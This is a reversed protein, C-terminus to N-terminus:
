WFQLRLLIAAIHGTKEHSKTPRKTQIRTKIFTPARAKPLGRGWMIKLIQVVVGVETWLEM